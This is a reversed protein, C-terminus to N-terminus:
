EGDDFGELEPEEEHRGGIDWPDLPLENPWDDVWTDTDMSYKLERLKRIHFDRAIERQRPGYWYCQVRYPFTPEVAFFRFMVPKGTEASVVASYHADQLWYRFRKASRIFASPSPDCFKLDYILIHDGMDCLIDPKCRSPVEEVIADHRKECEKAQKIADYLESKVVATFCSLVENLEKSKVAIKDGISARFKGAPVPNIAGNSKFCDPTYIAVVDEVEKKELLVAHLITGLQMPKTPSKRAMTGKNFTLDFQVPSTCYENLMTKSITSTDAHYEENTEPVSYTEREEFAATM